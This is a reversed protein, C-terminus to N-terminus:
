QQLAQIAQSQQAQMQQNQIILQNHQRKRAERENNEEQLDESRFERDQELKEQLFGVVESSYRRSNKDWIDREDWVELKKQRELDKWHDKRM